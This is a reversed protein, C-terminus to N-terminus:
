DSDKLDQINLEISKESKLVGLCAGAPHLVGLCAGVSFFLQGGSIYFQGPFRAFFYWM